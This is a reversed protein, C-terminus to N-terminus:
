VAEEGNVSISYVKSFANNMKMACGLTLAQLWGPSLGNGSEGGTLRHEDSSVNNQRKNRLRDYWDHSVVGHESPLLGTYITAQDVGTQSFLYDYNAMTAKGQGLLRKLGGESLEHRYITLWEPYFHSVTIGVVLRTKNDAGRSMVSCFLFIVIFAQKMPNHNEVAKLM